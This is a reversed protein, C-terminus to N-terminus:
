LLFTIFHPVASGLLKVAKCFAGFILPFSPSQSLILKLSAFVSFFLLLGGSAELDEKDDVYVWVKQFIHSSLFFLYQGSTKIFLKSSTWIVLFCSYCFYNKGELIFFVRSFNITASVFALSEKFAPFHTGVLACSSYKQPTRTYVKIARNRSGWQIIPSIQTLINVNLFLSPM